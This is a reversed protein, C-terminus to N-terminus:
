DEETRYINKKPNSNWTFSAPIWHFEHSDVSKLSRVKVAICPKSLYRRKDLSLLTFPLTEPVSCVVKRCSTLSFGSVTRKLEMKGCDRQLLFVAHRVTNRIWLISSDM